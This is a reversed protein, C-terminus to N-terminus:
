PYDSKPSGNKEGLWLLADEFLMNQIPSSFIGSEDGHGMVMYVMHYKTNTWVVPIDGSSLVVKKGLPYNSPDLTVLVQVDKNLRPSPEWQYFENPPADYTKPLRRTVPHDNTDVILKIKGPELPWNNSHFVAGGLFQVFWTWKTNKDNYGSVHFGLWAGGHEMYNQFAAQQEKAHPSDNLCLVVQYKALNEENMASWDTTSEFAFHKEAALKGYFSIADEAFQVHAREVTTRYFAIARFNTEEGHAIGAIGALMFSVAVTLLRNM